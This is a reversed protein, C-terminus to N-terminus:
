EIAIHDKLQWMCGYQGSDCQVELTDFGLVVLKRVLTPDALITNGIEVLENKSLQRGTFAEVRFGHSLWNSFQHKYNDNGKSFKAKLLTPVVGQVYAMEAADNFQRLIQIKKDVSHFWSVITSWVNELMKTPILKERDTGLLSNVCFFRPVM